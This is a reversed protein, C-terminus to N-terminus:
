NYVASFVVSSNIKGSKIADNAVFSTASATITVPDFSVPLKDDGEKALAAFPFTNNDPTLEQATKSPTKATLKIGVGTEYTADDGWLNKSALKTAESAPTAILNMVGDKAIDEGSCGTIYLQIDKHSGDTIAGPDAPFDSKVMSGLNASSSSAAVNCTAKAIEGSFNVMANNGAAHVFTSALGMCAFVGAYLTKMKM